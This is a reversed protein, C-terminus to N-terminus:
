RSLTSKSISPTRTCNISMSFRLFFLRDVPRVCSRASASFKISDYFPLLRWVRTLFPKIKRNKKAMEFIKDKLGRLGRFLGTLRLFTFAMWAGRDHFSGPRKDIPASRKQSPTLDTDFFPKIKEKSIRGRLAKAGRRSFLTKCLRFDGFHFWMIVYDSLWMIM